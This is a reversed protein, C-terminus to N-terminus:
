RWWGPLLRLREGNKALWTKLCAEAPKEPEAGLFARAEGFEKMPYLSIRLETLRCTKAATLVKIISPFSGAAVPVQPSGAQAVMGLAVLFMMM